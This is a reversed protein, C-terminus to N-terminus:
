SAMARHAAVRRRRCRSCCGDYVSVAILAAFIILQISYTARAMTLAGIFTAVLTAMSYVGSAVWYVAWSKAILATSAFANALRYPFMCGILMGVVVLYCSWVLGTVFLEDERKLEAKVDFIWAFPDPTTTTTETTTTTTTTTTTPTTTTTTTTTPTTTTPELTTPDLTTLITTTPVPTTTVLVTTASTVDLGMRADSVVEEADPDNLYAYRGICIITISLLGVLVYVCGLRKLAPVRTTDWSSNRIVVCGRANACCRVDGAGEGYRSSVDVLRVRQGPDETMAAAHPMMMAPPPLAGAPPRYHDKGDDVDTLTHM